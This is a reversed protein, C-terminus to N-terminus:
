FNLMEFYVMGTQIAQNSYCLEVYKGWFARFLKIHFFRFGRLYTQVIHNNFFLHFPLLKMLQICITIIMICCYNIQITNQDSFVNCTCQLKAKSDLIVKIQGLNQYTVTGGRGEYFPAEKVLEKNIFVKKGLWEFNRNNEQSKGEEDSKILTYFSMPMQNMEEEKEAPIELVKKGQDDKKLILYRRGQLVESLFSKLNSDTTSSDGESFNNLSYRMELKNRFDPCWLMLAQEVGYKCLFGNRQYSSEEDEIYVEVSCIIEM